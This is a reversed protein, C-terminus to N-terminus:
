GNRRLHGYILRRKRRTRLTALLLAPAESSRSPWSEGIQQKFPKRFPSQTAVSPAGKKTQGRGMQTMQHDQTLPAPQLLPHDQPPSDGTVSALQKISEASHHLCNMLQRNRQKPCRPPCPAAGHGYQHIDNGNTVRVLGEVGGGGGSGPTEVTVM